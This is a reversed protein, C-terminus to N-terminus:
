IVTHEDGFYEGYTMLKSKWYNETEAGCLETLYETYFTKIKENALLVKDANIVAPQEALVSLAEYTKDWKQEPAETEFCPVYILEDTFQLLNESYFFEHVTMVTSWGDYPVQIVIVDPHESEFDYKICDTVQLYDPFLETEDHKDLVAGNFDSDYYFIPMVNVQTGPENVFRKYLAEMTKWWKARCPLFVIKKHEKPPVPDIIRKTYRGVASLLANYDLTYRYPNRGIAKKLMEEQETYVPYNHLGGGKVVKMYDGYDSSLKNDYGVPININGNEFPLILAKKFLEKTYVHDGKTIYFQMAAVNQANATPCERYISQVQLILKRIIRKEAGRKEAVSLSDLARIAREKRDAEKQADDYVGDLPFIDVGVSYPCGYFEKLHEPSYDIAHSNVVRGTIEKYEPQEDLTMVVYEAPLENKAVKFFKEWDDRLMCIDLDDDWPIYGKHRVAGLLTGYDAFWRLGHRECIEAIQSLVKLQCAWYRKMMSTIFFGERVEDEFFASSFEINLLNSLKKDKEM